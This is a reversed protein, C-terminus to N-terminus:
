SYAELIAQDFNALVNQKKLERKMADLFKGKFTQSLQLVPYLYNGMQGIQKWNGQIAYGAAPVLCHIHPHLSLNQGWTHLVAVAGTEVGYHTYGFSHLTHWVSRFLIKYYLRDNWLCISNLLHPVTFVIHFHKVPLTSELLKEIWLLQKAYQCKPCNRDGCSNYSYRIVGCSECVEEHGGLTATRCQMINFMAKTQVPALATQLLLSKGFRRVVDALEYQPKM